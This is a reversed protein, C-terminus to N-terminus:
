EIEAGAESKDAEGTGNTPGKLTTYSFKTQAAILSVGPLLRNQKLYALIKPIDPEFSEPMPRLLGRVAAVKTFKEMDTIEVKDRGLRLKLKGHPLVITKENTSRIYQEIQWALWSAQKEIKQLEVQRYEEIIRVEDDALKNIADAQGELVALAALIQDARLRNMEILQQKEKQESELLLEDIFSIM